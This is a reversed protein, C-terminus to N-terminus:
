KVARAFDIDIEKISGNIFKIYAWEKGTKSNKEVILIAEVEGTKGWQSVEMLVERKSIVEWKGFWKDLINM